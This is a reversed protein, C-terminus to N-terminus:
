EVSDLDPRSPCDDLEEFESLASLFFSLLPPPESEPEDPEDPPEFSAEPDLAPEPDPEFESPPLEFDESL